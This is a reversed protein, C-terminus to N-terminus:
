NDIESSFHNKLFGWEHIDFLSCFIIQSLILRLMNLQQPFVTLFLHQLVVREIWSDFFFFKLYAM